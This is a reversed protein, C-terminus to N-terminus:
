GNAPYTPGRTIWDWGTKGAKIEELRFKQRPRVQISRM